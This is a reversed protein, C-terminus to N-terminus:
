GLLPSFFVSTLVQVTETNMGVFSVVVFSSSVFSFLLLSFDNVQCEQERSKTRKSM